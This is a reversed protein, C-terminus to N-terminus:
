NAQVTCHSQNVVGYDSEKRLDSRERGIKDRKKESLQGDREKDIRAM